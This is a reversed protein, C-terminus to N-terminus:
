EFYEIKRERINDIINDVFYVSKIWNGQKDYSYVIREKETIVEIINEQKDYQFQITYDLKGLKDYYVNSKINGKENYHYLVKTGNGFIESIKKGEKDYQIKESNIYKEGRKTLLLKNNADYMKEIYEITKSNNICWSHFIKELKNNEFEKVIKINGQYTIIKKYETIKQNNDDRIMTKTVLSDIQIIKNNNDYQYKTRNKVIYKPEKFEVLLQKVWGKKNFEIFKTKEKLFKVKGKLKQKQWDNGQIQANLNTAFLVLIVLISNKM